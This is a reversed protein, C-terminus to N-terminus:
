KWELKLDKRLRGLSAELTRTAGARFAGVIREIKVNDDWRVEVKVEHVGASVALENQLSGEHMEFVLAKKRKQGSLREELVQRDDVFVRLIGRRLPHDFDIRLRASPSLAEPLLAGLSGLLPAAPSAVASATPSPAASPAPGPAASSAPGAAPRRRLGEALFTVYFLGLAALVLAGVWMLRGRGRARGAPPAPRPFTRTATPPGLSPATEWSGAPAPVDAVLAALPSDPEEVVVLEDGGIGAPPAAAAAQWAAEDTHRPPRDGLVDELDGAFAEATPHRLAPDKALARLLVHEVDPPIGPALRSPPVPKEYVVRHVIAPVTPAWFAPRGTLLMYAVSALSFIDARADVEEVRAQEPATYLPTGIFEGTTTLRQRASELRAIGFDVVKTEGSPLVFVNAPKIDRHVVGQTHAHHLARAVKAVLRLVERWDLPGDAAIQALTRGRLLELAIYLNGTAADRGLDYVVVIGPHQLGAAIKAEALFREEFVQGEEGTLSKQIVKLAITRGLAPDRAEYVVGMAGRGIERVIEYRGISSPTELM